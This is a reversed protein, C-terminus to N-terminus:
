PKSTRVCLTRTHTGDKACLTVTRARPVCERLQYMLNVLDAEAPDACCVGLPHRFGTKPLVVYFTGNLSHMIVRDYVYRAFYLFEKVSVNDERAMEALKAATLDM